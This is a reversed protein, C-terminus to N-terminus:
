PKPTPDQDTSCGCACPRGASDLLPGPAQLGAPCSAGPCGSCSAPQGADGEGACCAANKDSLQRALRRIVLGAAVAVILIVIITQWM